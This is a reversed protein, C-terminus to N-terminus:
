EEELKQLYVRLGEPLSAMGTLYDKVFHRYKQAAGFHAQIVARDVLEGNRLGIWEQYNSYLWLEPAAAIGHRVPNAHIYRCLHRLYEDRDVLTAEFRDEFLTGSRDYRHNFTRTYSGFVRKPLMNVPTAGDQRVLWHFHNPLLCYAIITVQCARSVEKLLYLATHYDADSRFISQRGAGRNYLHYYAGQVFQIKRRPVKVGEM